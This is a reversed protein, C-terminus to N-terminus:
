DQANSFSLDAGLSATEYASTLTNYHKPTISSIIRDFVGPSVEKGTTEVIELYDKKPVQSNAYSFTNLVREGGVMHFYDTRTTNLLVKCAIDVPTTTVCNGFFEGDTVWQANDNVINASIPNSALKFTYDAFPNTFASFALACVIASLGLLYKKM